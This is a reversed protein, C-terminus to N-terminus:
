PLDKVVEQPEPCLDREQGDPPYFLRGPLRHPNHVASLFLGSDLSFWLASPGCLLASAKVVACDIGSQVVPNCPTFSYRLTVRPAGTEPATAFLRLSFRLFLIMRSILVQILVMGWWEDDRKDRWLKCLSPPLQLGHSAIGYRGSPATVLKKAGGPIAADSEDGEISRGGERLAEASLRM